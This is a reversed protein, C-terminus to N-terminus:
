PITTHIHRFHEKLDRTSGAANYVTSAEIEILAIERTNLRLPTMRKTMETTVVIVHM